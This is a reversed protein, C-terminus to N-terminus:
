RSWEITGTLLSTINVCVLCAWVLCLIHSGSILIRGPNNRGKCMWINCLFSRLWPVTRINILMDWFAGRDILSYCCLLVELKWVVVLLFWQSAFDPFCVLRQTLKNKNKINKHSVTVGARWPMLDGDEQNPWFLIHVAAVVNSHLRPTWPAVRVLNPPLMKILVAAASPEFHWCVNRRM